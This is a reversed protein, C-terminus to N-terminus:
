RRWFPLDDCLRAFWLGCGFASLLSGVTARGDVLAWVALVGLVIVWLLTGM